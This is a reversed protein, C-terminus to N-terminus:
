LFAFCHSVLLSSHISSVILISFIMEAWIKVLFIKKSTNVKSAALCQGFSCDQAIDPFVLSPFKFFQCFGQGLKSGLKPGGFNKELTKDLCHKLSDDQAMELFVLSSFKFFYCFVQNQARNQATQGFNPSECNKHSKERQQYNSM